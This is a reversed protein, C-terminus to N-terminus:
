LQLQLRLRLLVECRDVDVVSRGDEEGGEEEGEEGREKGSDSDSSSGSVDGSDLSSAGLMDAGSGDGEDSSSGSVDSRCTVDVHMVPTVGTATVAATATTARRYAGLFAELDAVTPPLFNHTVACNWPALNLVAHAWGQPVVVTEGARQVFSYVRRRRQHGERIASARGSDSGSASDSDSSSGSCGLGDAAMLRHPLVPVPPMDTDARTDTGIDRLLSHWTTAFWQRVDYDKDDDDCDSSGSCGLEPSFLRSSGYAESNFERSAAGSAECSRTGGSLQLPPEVPPEVVVWQKAGAVLANWACTRLPDVHLASGSGAPGLLWWRYDPRAGDPLAELLDHSGSFLAPVSYDALLEPADFDFSADFICAPPRKVEASVDLVNEDVFRKLKVAERRGGVSFYREGFRDQLREVTWRNERVAPWQHLLDTIIFPYRRHIVTLELPAASLRSASYRAITGRKFWRSATAGTMFVAYFAM